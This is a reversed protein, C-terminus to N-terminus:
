PYPIMMRLSIWSNEKFM